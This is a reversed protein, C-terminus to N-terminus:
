GKILKKSANTFRIINTNADAYRLIRDLAHNSGNEYYINPRCNYNYLIALCEKYRGLIQFYTGRFNQINLYSCNNRNLRFELRTKWPHKTIAEIQQKISIGKKRVITCLDRQEKDYITVSSPIASKKDSAPIYDCSYFTKTIEGDPNTYQFLFNNEKASIINTTVRNTKHWLDTRKNDFYFEVESIHIIYPLGNGTQSYLTPILFGTNVLLIIAANIQFLIDQEFNFYEQNLILLFYIGRKELCISNDGPCLTFPNNKKVVELFHASIYAGNLLLKIKDVGSQPRICYIKFIENQIFPKCMM